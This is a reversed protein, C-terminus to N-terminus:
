WYCLAGPLHPSPLPWLSIVPGAPSSSLPQNSPPAPHPRRCECFQRQARPLLLLLQRQLHLCCGCHCLVQLSCACTYMYMCTSYVSCHSSSVLESCPLSSYQVGSVQLLRHCHDGSFVQTAIWDGICSHTHTHEHTLASRYSM